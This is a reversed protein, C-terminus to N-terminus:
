LNKVFMFVDTFISFFLISITFTIVHFLIKRIKIKFPSKKIKPYDKIFVTIISGLVFVYFIISFLPSRFFSMFFVFSFLNLANVIANLLGNGCFYHGVFSNDMECGGVFGIINRSLITFFPLLALLILIKAKKIDIKFFNKLM